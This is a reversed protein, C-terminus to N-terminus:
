VLATICVCLLYLHVFYEKFEQFKHEGEARQREESLSHLFQEFEETLFRVQLKKPPCEDSIKGAEIAKGIKEDLTKIREIRLKETDSALKLSQSASKSNQVINEERHEGHDSISIPGLGEGGGGYFSLEERIQLLTADMSENAISQLIEGEAPPLELSDEDDGAPLGAFVKDEEKDSNSDSSAKSTGIKSATVEIRSKAKSEESLLRSLEKRSYVTAGKSEERSISSESGFISGPELVTQALSAPQQQSKKSAISSITLDKKKSQSQNHKKKKGGKKGKGEGAPKPDFELKPFLKLKTFNANKILDNTVRERFQKIGCFRRMYGKNLAEAAGAVKAPVDEVAEALGVIIRNTWAVLQPEKGYEAERSGIVNKMYSVFFDYLLLGAFDAFSPTRVLLARRLDVLVNLHGLWVQTAVSKGLYKLDTGRLRNARVMLMLFERITDYYGTSLGQGDTRVALLVGQRFALMPFSDAYLPVKEIRPFAEGAFAFMVKELVLLGKLEQPEFQMYVEKSINRLLGLIIAFRGDPDLLPFVRQALAIYMKVEASPLEVCASLLKPIQPALTAQETPSAKDFMSNLRSLLSGSNAAQDSCLLSYLEEQM